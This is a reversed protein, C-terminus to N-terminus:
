EFVAPKSRQTELTINFRSRNAFWSRQDFYRHIFAVTEQDVSTFDSACFFGIKSTSRSSSVYGSPSIPRPQVDNFAISSTSPLHEDINQPPWQLQHIIVQTSVNFICLPVGCSRIYEIHPRPICLLSLTVVKTDLWWQLFTTTVWFSQYM